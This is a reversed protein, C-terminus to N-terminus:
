LPLVLHPSPTVRHHRSKKSRLDRATVTICFAYFEAKGKNLKKIGTQLTLIYANNEIL